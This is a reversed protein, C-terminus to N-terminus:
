NSVLDDLESAGAEDDKEKQSEVESGKVLLVQFVEKNAFNELSTESTEYQLPYDAAKATSKEKATLESFKKGATSQYVFCGNDDLKPFKLTIKCDNKPMKTVLMVNATFVGEPVVQDGVKFELENYRGTMGVKEEITKCEDEITALDLLNDFTLYTVAGSPISCSVVEVCQGLHNYFGTCADQLFLSDEEAKATASNAGKVGQVPASLGFDRIRRINEDMDMCQFHNFAAKQTKELGRNTTTGDGLVANKFSNYIGEFKAQTGIADPLCKNADGSDVKVAAKRLVAYTAKIDKIGKAWADLNAKGKELVASLATLDKTAFSFDGNRRFKDVEDKIYKLSGDDNKSSQLLTIASTISNFKAKRGELEKVTQDYEAVCHDINDMVEKAASFGGGLKQKAQLKAADADVLTIKGDWWGDPIPAADFNPEVFNPEIQDNRNWVCVALNVKDKTRLESCDDNMSRDFDKWHRSVILDGEAKEAQYCDAEAVGAVETETWGTGFKSRSEKFCGKKVKGDAGKLKHNHYNAPGGALAVQCISLGANSTITTKIKGDADFCYDDLEVESSTTALASCLPAEAGVPGGPGGSFDHNNFNTFVTKTTYQARGLQMLIKNVMSLPDCIPDSNSPPPPPQDGTDLRHMIERLMEEAGQAKLEREDILSTGVMAFEKGVGSLKVQDFVDVEQETQGDSVAIMEYSGDEQSEFYLTPGEGEDHGEEEFEEEGFSENHSRYFFDPVSYGAKTCAAPSIPKFDGPGGPGGPGGHGGQLKPGKGGKGGDPGGPGGGLMVVQLGEPDLLLDLVDQDIEGNAISDKYEPAVNEAFREEPVEVRGDACTLDGFAMDGAPELSSVNNDGLKFLFNCVPVDDKFVTISFPAKRLSLDYSGDAAMTAKTEEYKAYSAKLVTEGALSLATGSLALSGTAAFAESGEEGSAATTPTDSDDGSSGSCGFMLGLALLSGLPRWLITKSKKM